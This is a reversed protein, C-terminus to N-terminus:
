FTNLSVSDTFIDFASRLAPSKGDRMISISLSMNQRLCRGLRLQERTANWTVAIVIMDGLIASGRTFYLVSCQNNSIEVPM